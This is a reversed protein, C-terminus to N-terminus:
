LPSPASGPLVTIVKPSTPPWGLNWDTLRGQGVLLMIIITTVVLGGALFFIIGWTRLDGWGHAAEEDDHALPEAKDQEVQEPTDAYV